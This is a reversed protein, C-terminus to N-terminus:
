KEVRNFTKTLEMAVKKAKAIADDYYHEIGLDTAIVKGKKDVQEITLWNNNSWGDHESIDALMKDGLKLRTAKKVAMENTFQNGYPKFSVRIEGNSVIHLEVDGKKVTAIHKGYYWFADRKRRSIMPVHILVTVENQMYFINQAFIFFYKPIFLFFNTPSKGGV